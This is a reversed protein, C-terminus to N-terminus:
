VILFAPKLIVMEKMFILFYLEMTVKLIIAFDTIKKIEKTEVIGGNTNEVRSYAIKSKSILGVCSSKPM